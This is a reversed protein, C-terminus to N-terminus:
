DPDDMFENRSVAPTSAHIKQPIATSKQKDEQKDYSKSDEGEVSSGDAMKGDSM